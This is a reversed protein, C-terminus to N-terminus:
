FSLAADLSKKHERPGILFHASCNWIDAVTAREALVVYQYPRTGVWGEVLWNAVNAQHWLPLENYLDTSVRRITAPPLRSAIKRWYNEPNETAWAPINGHREAVKYVLTEIAYDKSCLGVFDEVINQVSNRFKNSIM